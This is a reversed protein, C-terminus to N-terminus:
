QESGTLGARRKIEDVDVKRIYRVLNQWAPQFGFGGKAMEQIAEQKSWGQVAIRYIACVTGTRDAGRRCHVFVPTRDKDTVIQLFRVMEKDEPHWPTMYIHEYSLGAEEVEKRESHFSRLNVVTKIGLEKLQRIGEAGPKAGRYLDDSVKHFNSLGPLEMRHAWSRKASAVGEPGYRENASFAGKEYQCTEVLYAGVWGAVAGALFVAIYCLRVPKASRPRQRTMQGDEIM